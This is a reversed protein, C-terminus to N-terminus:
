GHRRGTSKREFCIHAVLLFLVTIGVCYVRLVLVKSPMSSIDAETWLGYLVPNYLWHNYGQTYLYFLGSSIAIIFAYSLYKERLLVNFALCAAGMFALSPVLIVAYTVLYTSVEVPAQGRLVQTIMATLGILLLLFLALLLTALFKSILFVNDPVPASWLIAEIRLELAHIRGAYTKALAKIELM